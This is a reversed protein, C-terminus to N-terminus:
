GLTQEVFGGGDLATAEDQLAAAMLDGGPPRGARGDVQRDDQGAYKATTRVDRKVSRRGRGAM